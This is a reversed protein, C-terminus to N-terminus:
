IIAAHALWGKFAGKSQQIFSGWFINARSGEMKYDPSFVQSMWPLLSQRFSICGGKYFRFPHESTYFEPKNAKAIVVDFLERWSNGYGISVNRVLYRHPDSLIGRHVLGSRHVLQIARNVDEYIYCADFELKADVFDQVIDAILCAKRRGFYCGDPEISGFFDLKLLCGNKKDYYLGRIPFSQDYKFKMCTEPYILQLFRM